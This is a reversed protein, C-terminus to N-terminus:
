QSCILDDLIQGGHPPSGGSGNPQLAVCLGSRRHRSLSTSYLETSPVTQQFRRGSHAMQRLCRNLCSNRRDRAAQNGKHLRDPPGKLQLIILSDSIISMSDTSVPNPYCTYLKHVDDLHVKRWLVKRVEHFGSKSLLLCSLLDKHGNWWEGAVFFYIEQMLLSNHYVLTAAPPSAAVLADM